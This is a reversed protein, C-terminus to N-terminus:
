RRGKRPVKGCECELIPEINLCIHLEGSRLLQYRFGALADFFTESCEAGHLEIAINRIRRIWSQCAEGRFLQLESGEIDIKLLDVTSINQERLLTPIDIGEVSPLEGPEPSRVQTAWERRDGYDGRSLSLQTTCGWVAAQLLSSRDRYSELNLRCVKANEPDPEMSIVRATPFAELLYVSAYGVNAGCDVIVVPDSIARLPKLEEEVFIQRFVEHDSSRGGRMYVQNHNHRLTVCKLSHSSYGFKNAVRGAM